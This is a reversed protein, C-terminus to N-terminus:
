RHLRRGLAVFALADLGLARVLLVRPRAAFLGPLRALEGRFFLLLHLLQGLAVALHAGM